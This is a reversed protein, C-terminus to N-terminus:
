KAEMRELVRVLSALVETMEDRASVLRKIEAVDDRINEIREKVITVDTRVPESEQKHKDVEVQLEKIVAEATKLRFHVTISNWVVGLFAILILVLAELHDALYQAM